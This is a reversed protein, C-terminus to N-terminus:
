LQSELKEYSFQNDKVQVFGQNMTDKSILDIVLSIEKNVYCHDVM